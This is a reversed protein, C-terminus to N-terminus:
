IFHQSIQGSGICNLNSRFHGHIQLPVGRVAGVHGCMWAGWPWGCTVWLARLQTVAFCWVGKDGAVRVDEATSKISYSHHSNLAHQGQIGVGRVTNTKRHNRNTTGV